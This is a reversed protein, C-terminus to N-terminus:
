VTYLNDELRSNETMKLAIKYKYPSSLTASVFSHDQNKNIKSFTFIELM